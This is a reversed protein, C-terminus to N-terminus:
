VRSPGQERAEHHTVGGVGREALSNRQATGHGPPPQSCVKGPPLGSRATKAHPLKSLKTILVDRSQRVAQRAQTFCTSFM